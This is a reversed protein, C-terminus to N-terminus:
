KNRNTIVKRVLLDESSTQIWCPGSRTKAAARGYLRAAREQRSQSLRGPQSIRPRGIEPLLRKKFDARFRIEDAAIEVSKTSAESLNTRAFQQLEDIRAADSFFICLSPFYSNAGLSDVKALLARFNTKAFDWALDPRDSERAVKAVLFGARSTPLEDTLAIALTKKILAPDTSLALASYYNQKEETSATKLGLDHLKQWVAGDGFRMAVAFTPARLDPALAAPNRLYRDFNKRCLEIVEKDGFLGLQQILSARLLSATMPEDQKPQVGLADLAPRLIRRAYAHFREREPTGALLNDILTFANIVQERVALANDNEMRQLLDTYFRLPQRGAQVFSWADSLLNVKDPVKMGPIAALLLKWSMEDYSVRYNGAGEVNFKVARHAAIDDLTATRDGMLLTSSASNGEVNYTLPIKWLPNASDQFNIIFREQLLGVKDKAERSVNVLPFGPQLTWGAAIDAVPRGSAESLANWLDATTSNSYKHTRIYRRIGDRFKEEGLFSELMRIFSQGKKYTIDDFASNAEAETAVPQQIPHTTARADGEMAQEKPIGIRRTPDRPISKELWVEWQPNFHATCKTGMWSAFGENLWLNDWWAMTVLDGFWQHAVEHAIVEFVLQKTAVSSNQPDFLLATEYFTIGGWNEMAGGFGGPIALQDLKPLPYPEGFYDNYFHLIKATSELAYRGTEAKGKTTVIRLKVGDVESEVFDFQGACFVNLYSSMSPTPEFVVERGNAVKEERSVPMNSVAMWNEPVVATLQFRARFVPEDWCPFFRRADSPEFQTGLFIKKAGSGQEQYKGYFLGRGFQNIKGTFALELTHQGIGLENPLAITVLETKSDFTLASKALQTGDLRAQSIIIDSANFVLQRAPAEVNLKITVRGAFTLKATDPKIWIAYDTPRINKPLKGPTSAFDFPKEAQLPTVLAFSLLLIRFLMRGSFLRVQHRNQVLRTGLANGVKGAGLTCQKM